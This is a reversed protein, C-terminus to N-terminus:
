ESVHIELILSTLSGIIQKKYEHLNILLTIIFRKRLM